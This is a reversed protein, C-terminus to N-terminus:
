SDRAPPIIVVPCPSHHTCQQSVSGLLLGVFGGHGRSGVVLLDAGKATELLAAAAPGRVLMPNLVVDDPTPGAALIARDLLQQESREVERQDIAAMAMGSVDGVSPTLWAHVVDVTASRRRGEELAWQLAAISGPSGDVGVVIRGM